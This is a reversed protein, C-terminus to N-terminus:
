GFKVAHEMKISAVVFLFKMVKPYISKSWQIFFFVFLSIIVQPNFSFANIYLEM